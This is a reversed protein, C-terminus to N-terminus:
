IKNVASTLQNVTPIDISSSESSFSVYCKRKEQKEKKLPLLYLVDNAKSKEQATDSFHEPVDAM